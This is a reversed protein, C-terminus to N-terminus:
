MGWASAALVAAGIGGSALGLWKWNKLLFGGSARTKALDHQIKDNESIWLTKHTEVRDVLQELNVDLQDFDQLVDTDDFRTINIEPWHVEPLAEYPVDQQEKLKENLVHWAQAAAQNVHYKLEIKRMKHPCADVKVVVRHSAIDLTCDCVTDKTIVVMREHREQAEHEPCLIKWKKEADYILLQSKTELIGPNVDEREKLVFDCQKLVDARNLNQYLSGTCSPMTADYQIMPNPCFHYHRIKQCPLLNDHMLDVHMIGASAYFDAATSVKTYLHTQNQVPVWFTQLRFLDLVPENRTKLLVPIQIYICGDQVKSQVGKLQYYDSITETVLIYDPYSDRIKVSLKQIATDLVAEPVLEPLLREQALTEAGRRLTRAQEVLLDTLWRRKQLHPRVWLEIIHSYYNHVWLQYVSHSLGSVCRITFQLNQVTGEM